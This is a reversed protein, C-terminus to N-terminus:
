QPDFGAAAELAEAQHIYESPSKGGPQKAAYAAKCIAQWYKGFYTARVPDPHGMNAALECFKRDEDPIAHLLNDGPGLRGHRVTNVKAEVDSVWKEIGVHREELHRFGEDIQRKTTELSDSM